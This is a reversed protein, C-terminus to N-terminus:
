AIDIQAGGTIYKQKLIVIRAPPIYGNLELGNAICEPFPCNVCKVIPSGKYAYIDYYGSIYTINGRVVTNDPHAIVEALLCGRDQNHEIYAALDTTTSICSMNHRTFEKFETPYDKELEPCFAGCDKVKPMLRIEQLGNM